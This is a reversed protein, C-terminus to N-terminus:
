EINHIQERMTAAETKMMLLMPVSDAEPFKVSLTNIERQIEQVLFDLTKGIPGESAILIFFQDRHSILRAIEEEVDVKDAFLVVERLIREDCVAGAEQLLTALRQKYKELAGPAKSRVSEIGVDIRHMCNVIQKELAAGERMKMQLVGDLALRCATYLAEANGVPKTEICIGQQDLLFQLSIESADLGLEKAVAGWFARSDRLREITHKQSCSLHRTFTAIVNVHGRTYVEAVLKRIEQDCQLFEQPLRVSVDLVKRNVSQIEVTWAGEVDEFVGRGYATMSRIM